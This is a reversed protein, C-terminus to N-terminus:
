RTRVGEAWPLGYWIAGDPRAAFAELEALCRDVEDLTALGTAAVAERAGRLNGSLNEVFGPFSAEGACAGFFIWTARVPRAGAGALLSVLRRGVNPDNGNRVYTEVFAGFVKRFLPPEPWLRMLDHDDDCVIVRGGPRVTAVLQEVVREPAPVHELLFRAHAVDFSGWEAAALPFAYADGERLDLLPREGAQEALALAATIQEVSREIGVAPRGAARALGRTLQGLGAGADLIREGGALAIERLCADNLLDNLTSLRRQEAPDTGHLYRTTATV